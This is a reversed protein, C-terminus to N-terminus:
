RRIVAVHEHPAALRVRDGIHCIDRAQAYGFVNAILTLDDNTAIAYRTYSGLYITDKIVGDFVVEGQEPPDMRGDPHAVRVTFAEPRICVAVDTGVPIANDIEVDVGAGGGIRISHRHRTVKDVTGNLINNDGLFSATFVTSPRNYLEEPSGVQHLVGGHLVAIRDAMSMAEDQDHTVYIVTLGLRRQLNRIELQMNARLRRDLAALPEDMLLMRPEFVIARALAVRQRQGGSLQNTFYRAYEGLQVLNLAENVRQDIAHERYGRNRLPFAVNDRVSMHPFLAYNQFVVGIDRRNPPIGVLNRGGYVIEGSDPETFGAVLM